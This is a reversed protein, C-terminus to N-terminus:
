GNASSRAQHHEASAFEDFRPSLQPEPQWLNGLPMVFPNAGPPLQHIPRDGALMENELQHLSCLIADRITPETEHSLMLQLCHTVVDQMAQHHPNASETLALSTAQHLAVRRKLPNPHSLANLITPLDEDRTRRVRPRPSAPTGVWGLILLAMAGQLLVGGVLAVNHDSGWLAITSGGSVAATVGGAIALLGQRQPRTTLSRWRKPPQWTGTYLAYLWFAAALGMGSTVVLRWDLLLLSLVVTGSLLWSPRTYRHLQRRLSRYSSDQSVTELWSVLQWVQSSVQAM